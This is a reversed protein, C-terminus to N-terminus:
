RTLAYHAEPTYVSGKRGRHSSYLVFEEVTIPAARFMSNARLWREPDAGRGSRFYAVTIHPKFKRREPALGERVVASEIRDRLLLLEPAPEVGLWLARVQSDTGFHGAGAINLEFPQSRVRELGRAVDEGIDEPVDGVFRLTVHLNEEPVWRATDSGTCISAIRRRLDEPLALGIFLRIM